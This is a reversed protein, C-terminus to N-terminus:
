GVITKLLPSLEDALSRAPAEIGLCHLEDAGFEPGWAPGALFMVAMAPDAGKPLAVIMPDRSLAWRAEMVESERRAHEQEQRMRLLERRLEKVGDEVVAMRDELRAVRRSLSRVMPMMGFLSRYATRESPAIYTPRDENTVMESPDLAEMPAVIFYDNHPGLIRKFEALAKKTETTDGGRVDANVYSEPLIGLGLRDVLARLQVGDVMPVDGQPLRVFLPRGNTPSTNPSEVMGMIRDVDDGTMPPITTPVHAPSPITAVELLDNLHM